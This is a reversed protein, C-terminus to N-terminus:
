SQKSKKQKTKKPAKSLAHSCTILMVLCTKLKGRCKEWAEAKGLFGADKM